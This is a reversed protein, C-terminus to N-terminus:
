QILHLAEAHAIVEETNNVMLFPVDRYDRFMEQIREVRKTDNVSRLYIAKIRGPFRNSIDLYIDGDKEGSDGILLFSLEPYTELINVIELYKHPNGNKKNRSRFSAMSRLLIPGKPFNNTKLFLELYRYMNWPSHSVYFIPNAASGSKGRHLKHYFSATGELASRSTARKFFTNMLVRWKLSSVVGTHLITDDIDSIVGYALTKPILM